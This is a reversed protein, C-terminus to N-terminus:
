TRRYYKGPPVIVPLEFNLTRPFFCTKANCAQYKLRAKVFYRGEKAAPMTKIPLQIIFISDFVNLAEEAGELRFLKYPPFLPNYIFFFRNSAVELSVPILSENTVKNAQIHYGEKVKVRIIAVNSKGPVLLTENVSVTVLDKKTVQLPDVGTFCAIFILYWFIM